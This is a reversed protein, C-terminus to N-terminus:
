HASNTLSKNLYFFWPPYTLSEPMNRTQNQGQEHM